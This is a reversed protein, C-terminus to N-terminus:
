YKKELILELKTVTEDLGHVNFRDKNEELRCTDIKQTKIQIEKSLNEGDEEKILINKVTKMDEISHNNVVLYEILDKRDKFLLNLLDNDLYIGTKVIFASDGIELIERELMNKYKTIDFDFKGIDEFKVVYYLLLFLEKSDKLELVKNSFNNLKITKKVLYEFYEEELNNQAILSLALEFKSYTVFMFLIKKIIADDSNEAIFKSIEDINKDVLERYFQENLVM